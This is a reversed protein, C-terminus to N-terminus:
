TLRPSKRELLAEGVEVAADLQHQLGRLHSRADVLMPLLSRVVAPKDDDVAQGMARVISTIWAPSDAWLQVLPIRNNIQGSVIETCRMLEDETTAAMTDLTRPSAWLMSRAPQQDDLPGWITVGYPAQPLVGFTYGWVKRPTPLRSASLQALLRDTPVEVGQLFDAVISDNRESM